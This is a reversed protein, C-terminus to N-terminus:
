DVAASVPEFHNALLSVPHTIISEMACSTITKKLLANISEKDTM